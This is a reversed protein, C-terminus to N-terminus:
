NDWGWDGSMGAVSYESVRQEFFNTQGEALVWDLWPLPNEEIDWNPKMGLQVLRRDAIYRIYTKVEEKSLGEPEGMEYVLDLFKDEAAVAQRYLDYISTKLDDTVVQPNEKCYQLFLQSMGNM